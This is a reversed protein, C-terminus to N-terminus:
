YIIRVNQQPTLKSLVEQINIRPLYEQAYDVDILRPTFVETLSKYYEPSPPKLRLIDDILHTLEHILSTFTYLVAEEMSAANSKFGVIIPNTLNSYQSISQAFNFLVPYSLVKDLIEDKTLISKSLVKKVRPSDLYEELSRLLAMGIRPYKALLTQLAGEKIIPNSDLDFVVKGDIDKIDDHISVTTQMGPPTGIMEKFTNAIENLRGMNANYARPPILIYFHVGHPAEEMTILLPIIYMGRKQLTDVFNNVFTGVGPIMFMDGETSQIVM